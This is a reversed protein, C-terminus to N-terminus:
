PIICEMFPTKNTRFFSTNRALVPNLKRFGDAMANKVPIWQSMIEQMKGATLLIKPVLPFMKSKQFRRTANTWLSEFCTLSMKKYERCTKSIQTGTQSIKTSSKEVYINRGPDLPGAQGPAFAPVSQGPCSGAPCCHVADQDFHRPFIPDELAWFMAPDINTSALITPAMEPCILHVKATTGHFFQLSEFNSMSCSSEFCKASKAMSIRPTHVLFHRM